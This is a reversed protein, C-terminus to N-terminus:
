DITLFKAKSAILGIYRSTNALRRGGRRWEGEGRRVKHTESGEVTRGEGRRGEREPQSTTRPCLGSM